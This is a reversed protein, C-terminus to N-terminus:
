SGADYAGYREIVAPSHHIFCCAVVSQELGLGGVVVAMWSRVRVYNVLHHKKMVRVTCLLVPRHRWYCWAVVCVTKRYTLDCPMASILLRKPPVQQGWECSLDCKMM